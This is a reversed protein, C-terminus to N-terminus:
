ALLTPRDRPRPCSSGCLNVGAPTRATARPSGPVQGNDGHTDQRAVEGPPGNTPAINTGGALAAARLSPPSPDGSPPIAGRQLRHRGSGETLGAVSTSPRGGPQGQAQSGATPRDYAVVQQAVRLSEVGV